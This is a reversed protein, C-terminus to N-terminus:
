ERYRSAQTARGDTRVASVRALKSRTNRATPRGVAIWLSLPVGNQEVPRCPSDANFTHHIRNPNARHPDPRAMRLLVAGVLPHMARQLRLGGSRGRGIPRALLVLELRKAVGVIVLPRVLCQVLLRRRTPPVRRRPGIRPRQRRKLVRAMVENPQDAGGPRNSKSALLNEQATRERVLVDPQLFSPVTDPRHVERDEQEAFKRLPVKPDPRLPRGSPSTM